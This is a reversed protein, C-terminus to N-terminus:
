ENQDREAPISQENGEVTEDEYPKGGKEVWRDYANKFANVSETQKVWEPLKNWIREARVTFFNRRVELKAREKKMVHSKRREEEGEVATNARTPREDGTQFSFWKDKDVRNFGKITKFTEIADGRTRREELTWLGISRLREEHTGGTTDSVLRVLRKQVKELTEKERETWPSWVSAAFDLKPRVFTKYLPVLTKASSFHFSRTILGLIANAQKAVIKCQRYPKLDKEIWVGLDKEVEVEGLEQGGMKYKFCPNMRGVHMVKCKEINFSMAWRRAWEEMREIDSQLKRAGEEGEVIRASKTDDAFKRLIVEEEDEEDDEGGDEDDGQGEVAEDIDDVYLGFLTGGLVTGQPVSSDVPVWNSEVGEVVVRQRRDRLWECVWGKVKGRVGAAHMKVPLRRHCVKDFAKSFDFFVIDFCRGEDLWKTVKNMFEIMNTAPSRGRRFGHQSNRLVRKELHDEIDTKLVREMIKCTNSTLNVPRYNAPAARSGKKYIPAINSEKWDRPVVGEDLSRRFIMTLPVIVENKLQKITRNGIGDPGMASTEKLADIVDAVKKETIEVDELHTDVHDQKEPLEDDNRTFVTAYYENMIEAQERPDIIVTGGDDKLPGIKGRARKSSNVYSYFFRPNTKSERAVKREFNKKKRRIAGKTKREAERYATKDISDGTSKWRDWAKKKDRILREVEKDMWRPRERGSRRKRWPVFREVAEEITKRFLQWMEEVGKGRFEEKWNRKMLGRMGEWDARDYNRFRKEKEMTRRDSQLEIIMSEHDSSGIRGNMRVERVMGQESSLVLDLINGHIHTPVNVHQFLFADECANYFDRGKANCSGTEWNVGAFNFDGILLSNGGCTKIWECLLADNDRSSNPSRYVVHVDLDRSKQKVRVTVCQNFCTDTEERWASIGKTYVVIGGGRGGETDQRDRREVMDYGDIWLFCDDIESNTWTETLAIIDPKEMQVMARLEDMKKVMSQMNAYFIKLGGQGDM